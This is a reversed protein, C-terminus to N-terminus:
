PVPGHAGTRRYRLPLRSLEGDEGDHCGPRGPGKRDLILTSRRARAAYVGASLGGTGAGIILVDVVDM